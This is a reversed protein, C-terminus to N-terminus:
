ENYILKRANEKASELVCVICVIQEAQASNNKYKMFLGNSMQVLEKCSRCKIKRPFSKDEELECTNNDTEKWDFARKVIVIAKM